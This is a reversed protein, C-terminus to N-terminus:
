DASVPDLRWVHGSIQNLVADNVFGYTNPSRIESLYVSGDEVTVSQLTGPVKCRAVVTGDPDFVILTNHKENTGLIRGDELVFIIYAPIELATKRQTGNKLNFFSVFRHNWVDGEWLETGCIQKGRFYYDGTFGGLVATEQLAEDLLVMEEATRKVLLFAHLTEAYIMHHVNDTSPYSRMCLLKGTEGDIRWIFSDTKKAGDNGDAFLTIVGQKTTHVFTPIQSRDLKPQFNWRENGDGDICLLGFRKGQGGENLEHITPLYRPLFYVKGGNKTVWVVRRDDSPPLYLKRWEERLSQLDKACEEPALETLKFRNPRKKLMAERAKVAKLTTGDRAVTRPEIDQLAYVETGVTEELLRIQEEMGSCKSILRLAKPVAEDKLREGLMKGFKAWPQNQQYPDCYVSQKGNQYLTCSFREDDFYFFLLAAAENGKTLKRAAKRLRVINSDETDYSPVVTLWPANQERLQDSPLLMSLIESREAGYLNLTTFTTGM